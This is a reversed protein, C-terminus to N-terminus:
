GDERKSLAWKKAIGNYRRNVVGVKSGGLKPVFKEKKINRLEEWKKVGGELNNKGYNLDNSWAM